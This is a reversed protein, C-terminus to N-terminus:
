EGGCSWRSEGETARRSLLSLLRSAAQGLAEREVEEFVKLVQQKTTGHIRTDAVTTEWHLLYANQEELTRIKWPVFHKEKSGTKKFMTWVM